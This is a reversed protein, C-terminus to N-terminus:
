NYKIIIVNNLVDKSYKVEREFHLHRMEYFNIPSTMSEYNFISHM